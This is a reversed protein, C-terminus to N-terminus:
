RAPVLLGRLKAALTLPDFPKVILGLSGAVRYREVDDPQARATLFVVPVEALGDIQRVQEVLGTGDMEPMMMDLLLLDPRWEGGRLLTLAASGSDASRVDIQADLSLAMGAIMRIDPDDEVHLVHLPPPTTM